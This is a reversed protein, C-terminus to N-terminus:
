QSLAEKVEAMARMVCDLWASDQYAMPPRGVEGTEIDVYERMDQSWAKKYRVLIGTSMAQQTSAQSQLYKIEGGPIKETVERCPWVEGLIKSNAACITLIHKMLRMNGAIDWGDGTFKDPNPLALHRSGDDPADDGILRCIRVFEPLSPVGKAGAGFMIRRVGRAIEADTLMGIAEVWEAPPEADFKRLLADGYFGLLKDWVATARAQNNASWEGM